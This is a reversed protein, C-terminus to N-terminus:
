ELERIQSVYSRSLLYGLAVSGHWLVWEGNVSLDQM